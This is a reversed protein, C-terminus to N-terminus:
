QWALKMTKTTEWCSSPPKTFPLAQWVLLFTDSFYVSLNREASIKLQSWNLGTRCSTIFETLWVSWFTETWVGSVLPCQWFKLVDCHVTNCTNIERCGVHLRVVHAIVRLGERRRWWSSVRRDRAAHHSLVIIRPLRASDAHLTPGGPQAEVNHTSLVALPDEDGEDESSSWSVETSLESLSVLDETHTCLGSNLYPSWITMFWWLIRFFQNDTMKVRKDGIFNILETGSKVM